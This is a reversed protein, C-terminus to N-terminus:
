VQVGNIIPRIFPCNVEFAEHNDAHGGIFLQAKPMSEALVRKGMSAYLDDFLGGTTQGILKYIAAYQEPSCLIQKKM